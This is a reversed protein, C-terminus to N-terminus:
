AITSRLYELQDLLHSDLDSENNSLVELYGVLTQRFADLAEKEAAAAAHMHFRPESVIVEGDDCEITLWLPHALQAGGPLAGQLTGRLVSRVWYNTVLPLQRVPFLERVQLSRHGGEPRVARRGGDHVAAVERM